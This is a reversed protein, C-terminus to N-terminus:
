SDWLTLALISKFVSSQLHLLHDLICQFPADLHFKRLFLFMPSKNKEKRRCANFIYWWIIIIMMMIHVQWWWLWKQLHDRLQVCRGMNSCSPLSGLWLKGGTDILFRPSFPSLYNWSLLWLHIYKYPTNLRGTTLQVWGVWAKVRQELHSKFMLGQNWIKPWHLAHHFNRWVIKISYILSKVVSLTHHSSSLMRGMRREYQVLRPQDFFITKPM